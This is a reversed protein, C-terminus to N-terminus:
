KTAGQETKKHKKVHKKAHKKTTPTQTNPAPTAQAFVMPIGAAVLALTLLTKKM